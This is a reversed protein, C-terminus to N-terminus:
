RRPTLVGPRAAIHSYLRRFLTAARWPEGIAEQGRNSWGDLRGRLLRDRTARVLRLRCSGVTDDFARAEMLSWIGVLSQM